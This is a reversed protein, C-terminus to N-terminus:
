TDCGRRECDGARRLRLVSIEPLAGIRMPLNVTGLGPSVYIVSKETRYEGRVYPTFFRGPNLTQEVIELTVQGGHTHGSVVFDYGLEAAKPFVDPNHSLLLNLANPDLLEDAGVLYPRSTRQYDVGAINLLADGFALGVNEQRLFRLGREAGYRETQDLAGAYDEHNGMCGWVGSDARLGALADITEELPDGAWSILDGTVLTAHPQTENAMAVLREVDKPTLYPGAHLDTIQTLRLGDLDRPLGDLAIDIERVQFRDRGIYVGYGAAAFPAVVAASAGAALLRRRHPDPLEDAPRLRRWGRWAWFFAYVGFCGATWVATLPRWWAAERTLGLVKVDFLFMDGLILLFLGGALAPVAWARGAVSRLWLYGHVQSALLFAQILRTSVSLSIPVPSEM